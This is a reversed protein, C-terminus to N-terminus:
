LVVIFLKSMKPDELSVYSRICIDVIDCVHIINVIFTTVILVILIFATNVDNQATCEILTM